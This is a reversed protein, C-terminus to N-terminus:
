AKLRPLLPDGKEVPRGGPYGGWGIVDDLPRPRNYIHDVIALKDGEFIFWPGYDRTWISNTSARIFQVNDMNVGGSIYANRASTESSANPVITTVEVDESMEAILAVTFRPLRSQWPM